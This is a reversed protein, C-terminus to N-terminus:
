WEEYGYGKNKYVENITRTIKVDVEAPEKDKWSIEPYSDENLRILGSEYDTKWYGDEGKVPKDKYLFLEGTIDRAIWM